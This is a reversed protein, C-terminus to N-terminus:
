FRLMTPGMPSPARSLGLADSKDQRSATIAIGTVAAASAAIAGITVWFYWKDIVRDDPVDVPPPPTSAKKKKKPKPPPPAWRSDLDARHTSEPEGAQTGRSQASVRARDALAADRAATADAPLADLHGQYAAAAGGYEGSAELVEAETRWNAASPDAERAATALARASELDGAALAEEVTAPESSPASEAIRSSLSVAGGRGSATAAPAVGVTVVALATVAATARLL